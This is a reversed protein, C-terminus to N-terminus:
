SEIIWEDLIKNSTVIDALLHMLREQEPWEIYSDIEDKSIWKWDVHEHNLSINPDSEVEAGFVPIHHINNNKHDYFQNLSPISWFLRPTISTEEKLERFAAEHYSEQKLVKGGIMRWQNPYLVESSRKFILFLVEDEQKHYPYVDILRKM